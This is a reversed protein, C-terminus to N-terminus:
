KLSTRRSLGSLLQAVSIVNASRLRAADQVARDDTAVVVPHSPRLREVAVIIEHDAEVNSASFLVTMSSRVARPPPVRGGDGAGDFVVLVSLRVRLALEALASVLRDRLAPLEHGPWSTLGVNYGDVVLHVGPVKLLFDVAEPSDDFIGPPLVIPERRSAQGVRSATVDTPPEAGLEAAGEIGVASMAHRLAPILQGAAAVARGLSEAVDARRRDAQGSRRAAEALVEALRAQAQDRDRRAQDAETTLEALRQRSQDLDIELRERRRTDSSWTKRLQSLETEIRKIEEQAARASEDARRAVEDVGARSQRLRAIEARQDSNVKELREVEREAKALRRETAALRNSALQEDKESDDTSETEARLEAIQKSWGPPRALWLWGVRGVSEETASEAVADRFGADFDLARRMTAPWNEPMTRRRSNVLEQVRGPLPSNHKKAWLRAETLAHDLAPRLESLSPQSAVVL